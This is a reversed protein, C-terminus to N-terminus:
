NWLLLRRLGKDFHIRLQLLQQNLAKIQNTEAESHVKEGILKVNQLGGLEGGCYEAIYDCYESATKYKLMITYYDTDLVWDEHPLSMGFIKCEDREIFAMPSEYLMQASGDPSTASAQVFVPYQPSLIKNWTASGYVIWGAPVAARAVTYGYTGDPISVFQIAKKDDTTASSILGADTPIVDYYAGGPLLLGVDAAQVSELAETVSEPSDFKNMVDETLRIVIDANQEADEIAADAASADAAEALIDSSASVDESGIEIEEGEYAFVMDTGFTVLIFIGALAIATIKRKM